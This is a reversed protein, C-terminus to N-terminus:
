RIQHPQHQGGPGSAASNQQLLALIRPNPALFVGPGVVDILQDLVDGGQNPARDAFRDFQRHRKQVVQPHRPAVDVLSSLACEATRDASRATPSRYPGARISRADPRRPPLPTAARDPFHQEHGAVRLVGGRGVAKRLRPHLRRCLWQRQVRQRDPNLLHDLPLITRRFAAFTGTECISTSSSWCIKRM